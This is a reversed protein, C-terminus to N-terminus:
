FDRSKSIETNQNSTNKPIGPLGAPEPENEPEPKTIPEQIHPAPEEKPKQAAEASMAMTLEADSMEGAGDFDEDDGIVPDIDIIMGEDGSLEAAVGQDDSVIATRLEDSMPATALAQKYATKRWMEADWQNEAARPNTSHTVGQRARDVDFQYVVKPILGGHITEVVAWAAMLKGRDPKPAKKHRLKVYLGDEYEFEDETYVYDGRIAKVQGSNYALVALGRWMPEFNAMWVNKVRRPVIAAVQGDPALGVKASRIVATIFSAQGTSTTFIKAMDKPKNRVAEFVIGKIRDIDISAPLVSKMSNEYKKLISKTTSFVQIGGSHSDNM